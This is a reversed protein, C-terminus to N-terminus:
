DPVAHKLLGQPAGASFRRGLSISASLSPSAPGEGLRSKGGTPTSEGRRRWGGLEPAEVEWGAGLEAWFLM